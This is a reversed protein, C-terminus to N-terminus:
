GPIRKSFDARVLELQHPKDIDMGIEAYPCIIARGTLHVRQTVKKVAGELDILRFLLLFLTDYGLLAAQKLPSKRAAIVKSWFAENGSLTTRIVNMDGGCVEIGKFKTYTRNSGPFRAEMTQRTIVHYYADEDTRMTTQVVWDVMDTTITPIDSSVILVHHSAPNIEQVKRMGVLINDLMNGQDPIYARIKQCNVNANAPLGSLIVNEVAESGCVADLVWQIMSKGGIDLMAKYKGQTFEYLPEGPQPIGGATLIADM